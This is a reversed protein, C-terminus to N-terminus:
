VKQCDDTYVFFRFIGPYDRSFAAISECAYGMDGFNDVVSVFVDIPIKANKM